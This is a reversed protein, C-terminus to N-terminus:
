KTPDLLEPTAHLLPFQVSHMINEFTEAYRSYVETPALTTVRYHDDGVSYIEMVSTYPVGNQNWSVNWRTGTLGDRKVAEEGARKYDQRTSFS